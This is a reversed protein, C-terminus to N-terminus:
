PFLRDSRDKTDELGGAFLPNSCSNLLILLLALLLHIFKLGGLFAGQNKGASQGSRISKLEQEM